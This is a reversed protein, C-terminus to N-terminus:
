KNHELKEIHWKNNSLSPTTSTMTFGSEPLVLTVDIDESTYGMQNKLTFTYTLENGECEESDSVSSELKLEACNNNTLIVPNAENSASCGNVSTATFIANATGFICENGNKFSVTAEGNTKNTITVGDPAEKLSWEMKSIEGGSVSASATVDMSMANCKTIANNQISPSLTITPNPYVTVTITGKKSEVGNKTYTYSYNTDGVTNADFTTVVTNDNYFKLGTTTGDKLTFYDTFYLNGTSQCKKYEGSLQPADPQNPKPNQKSRVRIYDIGLIAGPGTDSADSIITIVIKEYDKNPKFTKLGTYDKLEVLDEGANRQWKVNGLHEYKTGTYGHIYIHLWLSSKGLDTVNSINTYAVELRYDIGKTIGYLSYQLHAHAEKDQPNSIFMYNNVYSYKSDHM